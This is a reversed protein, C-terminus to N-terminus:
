SLGKESSMLFKQIRLAASDGGWLQVPSGGRSLESHSRRVGKHFHDDSISERVLIEQKSFLMMEGRGHLSRWSLKRKLGFEGEWLIAVVM